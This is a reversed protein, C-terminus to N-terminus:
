YYSKHKKTKRVVGHMVDIENSFTENNISQKINELKKLTHGKMSHSKKASDVTQQGLIDYRVFNELKLRSNKNNARMMLEIQQRLITDEPMQLLQGIM